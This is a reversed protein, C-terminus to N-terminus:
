LTREVKMSTKIFLGAFIVISVLSLVGGATRDPTRAFSIKVDNEGADVPVIMLGTVEASETAVAHGNVTVKWAPYNFLRITVSKASVAQLKFHKDTASWALIQVNGPAGNEDSVQPLDKSLEYPDDGAPVYEDTGDYGIGDTMADDMEQIDAAQDWWPPQVHHGAVLLTALLLLCFAIRTMWRWTPWKVHNTGVTLLLALPVNLCLLWRFPLQVYRFKPLYLWLFNSVPIMTLATLAGWSALWIWAGRPVCGASDKDSRKRSIWAAVAFVAVESMAVLSVLVNFRNHDVDAMYTFLFNDQPRVGPSLLATIGVWPEEYIAPILYVAAIGAGLVVAVGAKALIRVASRAAGEQLALVVALGAASYHIMVAAPANVLWAGALLVSLWLVPRGSEERLKLVCIPVLPLLVAALLEAFASRWYIVLLHYPNLAYLAAAFLADWPRLWRRALAYMSAGALTVIIWCYIGPVVKWPLIAGLAAGLTWSGPPYFLFRAEGYGWHALAAWRPYVIGEKWQQLVEMWSYM